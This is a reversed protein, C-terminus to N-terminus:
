WSGLGLQTLSRLEFRQQTFKSVIVDFGLIVDYNVYTSVFFIIYSLISSLINSGLYHLIPLLVFSIVILFQCSHQYAILSIIVKECAIYSGTQRRCDEKTLSTCYEKVQSGGKSKFQFFFSVRHNAFMSPLFQSLCLCYGYDLWYAYPFLFRLYCFFPLLWCTYLIKVLFLSTISEM